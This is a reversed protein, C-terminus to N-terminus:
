DPADDVTLLSTGGANMRANVRVWKWFESVASAYQDFDTKILYVGEGALPARVPLTTAPLDAYAPDRMLPHEFFEPRRRRLERESDGEAHKVVNAILRLEDLPPWTECSTVDLHLHSRSWGVFASTPVRSVPQGDHLMMASMQQEVSHYLGTTFLNLLTIQMPFLDDYARQSLENFHDAAAGADYDGPDPFRAQEWASQDRLAQEHAVRELDAFPPYVHDDLLRRYREIAILFEVIFSELDHTDM